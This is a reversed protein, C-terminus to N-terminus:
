VKKARRPNCYPLRAAKGFLETYIECMRAEEPGLKALEERTLVTKGHSGCRLGSARNLELAGNAEFFATAFEACWEHEDTAAYSDCRGEGTSYRWGSYVSQKTEHDKIKRAKQESLQKISARQEQSIGFKYIAHMIEHVPTSYGASYHGRVGEATCNTGLLTEEGMATAKPGCVGRVYKWDRSGKEGSTKKGELYKFAQLDTLHSSEPIVYFKHGARLLNLAIQPDHALMETLIRHLERRAEYTSQLGEPLEMLWIAALKAFNRPQVKKALDQAKGKLEMIQKISSDTILKEREICENIMFVIREPPISALWREDKLAELAQRVRQGNIQVKDLGAYRLDITQRQAYALERGPGSFIMSLRKNGQELNYLARLNRKLCDPLESDLLALFEERAGTRPKAYNLDKVLQVGRWYQDLQGSREELLELSLEDQMSQISSPIFSPDTLLAEAELELVGCKTQIQERLEAMRARNIPTLLFRRKLEEVCQHQGQISNMLQEALSKDIEQLDKRLKQVKEIWESATEGKKSAWHLLLEKDGDDLLPEKWGQITNDITAPQLALLKDLPRSDLRQVLFVLCACRRQEDSLELDYTDRAFKVAVAEFDAVANMVRILGDLKKLSQLGQASGHEAFAELTPLSQKTCLDLLACPREALQKIAAGYQASSPRVTTKQPRLRGGLVDDLPSPRREPLGRPEESRRRVLSVLAIASLALAVVLGLEKRHSNAWSAAQQPWQLPNPTSLKPLRDM